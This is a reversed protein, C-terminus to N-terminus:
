EEKLHFYEPKMCVQWLSYILMWMCGPVTNRQSLDGTIEFNSVQVNLPLTINLHLILIIREEKTEKKGFKLRILIKSFIQLLTHRHVRKVVLINVFPWECLNESRAKERWKWHADNSQRLPMPGACQKAGVLLTLLTNHSILVRTCAYQKM